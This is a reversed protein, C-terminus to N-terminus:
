SRDTWPDDKGDGPPEEDEVGQEGRRRDRYLFEKFLFYAGCVLGFFIGALLLFGSGGVKADLYSGGVSGALVFLAFQIGATAHRLYERPIHM